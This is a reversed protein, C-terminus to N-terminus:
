LFVASTIPLSDLPTRSSILLSADYVTFIGIYPRASDNFAETAAPIRIYSTTRLLLHIRQFEKFGRLLYSIIVTVYGPLPSPVQSTPPRQTSSRQFSPNLLHKYAKDHASLTTNIFAIISLLIGPVKIWLPLRRLSFASRYLVPLLESRLQFSFHCYAKGTLVTIVSHPKM